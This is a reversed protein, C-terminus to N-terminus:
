IGEVMKKIQVEQNASNIISNKEAETLSQDKRIENFDVDLSANRTSAYKNIKYMYKNYTSMKEVQEKEYSNVNSALNTLTRNFESKNQAPQAFVSSSLSVCVFLTLKSMNPQNM